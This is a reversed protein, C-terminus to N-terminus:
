QWDRVRAQKGEQALRQARFRENQKGQIAGSYAKSIGLFWETIGVSRFTQYRVM